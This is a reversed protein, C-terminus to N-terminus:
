LFGVLIDGENLLLLVGLMVLYIGAFYWLTIINYTTTFFILTIILLNQTLFLDGLLNIYLVLSYFNLM